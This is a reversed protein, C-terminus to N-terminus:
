RDAGPDKPAEGGAGEAARPHGPPWVPSPVVGDQFKVKSGLVCGKMGPRCYAGDVRQCIGNLEHRCSWTSVRRTYSRGSPARWPAVPKRALAVRDSELRREGRAATASM